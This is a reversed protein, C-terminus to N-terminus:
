AGELGWEFDRRLADRQYEIEELREPGLEELATVRSVQGLLYAETLAEQYLAEVGARLAQAIVTAEDEGKRTVLFDLHERLATDRM